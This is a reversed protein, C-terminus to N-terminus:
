QEYLSGASPYPICASVMTCTAFSTERALSDAVMVRVDSTGAVIAVTGTFKGATDIPVAGTVVVRSIFTGILKTTVGAVGALPSVVFKVSVNM